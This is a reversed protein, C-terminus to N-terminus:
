LGCMSEVSFLFWNCHHNWERRSTTDILSEAMEFLPSVALAELKDEPAEVKYYLSLDPLEAMMAEDLTAMAAMSSMEQQLQDESDGFLPAMTIGEKSLIASLDKVDAGSLSSVTTQHTRLEAGKKAMVILESPPLEYAHEAFSSGKEASKKRAM